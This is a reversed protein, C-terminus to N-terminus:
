ELRYGTGSKTHLIYWISLTIEFRKRTIATQFKVGSERSARTGKGGRGGGSLRVKFTLFSYYIESRLASDTDIELAM